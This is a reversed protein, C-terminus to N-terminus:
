GRCAGLLARVVDAASYEVGAAPLYRRVTALGDGSTILGPEVLHSNRAQAHGVTALLANCLCKKGATDEERGGKSVYTSVPEAACRFGIGGEATRYAERLYGLDCIRPRAQYVEAMAITGAVPVVKFPFKTPSAAADTQVRASGDAVAALVAQKYDARVGSEACFAFPTGVQVGAAGAAWAQRLREPTGYGGALWFPAGLARMEGLDAQDREGYVPEGQEDLRLKGRPPANHGGATHGEVVFGDVKTRRALSAALVHSSVIALFRPRALAAQPGEAYAAPDFHMLTDDGPQAGTVQLPYSAAEHNVFGDLVAPVREPIGAGMLVYGVGALMAGYLSPLHALQIKELYNIGVPQTHGAQALRVEVFNAVMCLERFSRPGDKDPMPLRVYPTREAKGGAIYYAKWVRRAMGPFPFGKMGGRMHGGPDGDQLRRVFVQDLATGSVVGLQGARGVAQALRWNSVAVGM